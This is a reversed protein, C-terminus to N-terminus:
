PIRVSENPVDVGLMRHVIEKGHALALLRIQLERETASPMRHRLGALLTERLDSSAQGVLAAKEGPDMSRWREFLMLEVEYSTDESQM